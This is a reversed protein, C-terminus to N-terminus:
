GGIKSWSVNPGVAHAHEEQCWNKWDQLPFSCLAVHPVVSYAAVIPVYQFEQLRSMWRCRLSESVPGLRPDFKRWTAAKAWTEAIGLACSSHLCGPFEM